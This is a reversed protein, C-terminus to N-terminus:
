HTSDPCIMGKLLKEVEENRQLAATRNEWPCSPIDSRRGNEIGFSHSTLEHYFASVLYPIDTYFTDQRHLEETAPGKFPDSTAERIFVALFAQEPKTLLM